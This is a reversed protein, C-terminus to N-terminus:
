RSFGVAGTGTHIIQKGDASLKFAEAGKGWDMQLQGKECSWKGPIGASHLASGDKNFVTDDKGFIGSAWSSWRGVINPCGSRKPKEEADAPRRRTEQM